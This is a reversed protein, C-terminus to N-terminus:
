RKVGYSVRPDLAAYLFDAMFNALLVFFTLILFGCLALNYDNGMVADFMLKGMGPFGFVAEVTLAGSFLTGLDLMLITLVPPLANKFAHNWVTRAPSCGKARATRIHDARLADAMAARLHRVYVALGSVALTAVPLTMARVDDLFEGDLSAGAPLWGLTVAFLSILLIGLWFHPLSIGALCFLNIARDSWGGLHRAAHVGMPLALAITIVLSVGLLLGTNRFRPWLVELVPMNYLRSYGLDGQLAATLWRGYRVPLPQDLAYLARLRAADEPTFRPNGAAMLDIPDGPMLGILMYVLFSIALLTVIAQLLRNLALRANM